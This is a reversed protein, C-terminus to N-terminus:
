DDAHMAAASRMLVKKMKYIGSESIYFEASVGCRGSDTVGPCRHRLSM